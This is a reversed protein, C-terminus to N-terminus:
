DTAKKMDQRILEKIYGQRNAQKELYDIIDGDTSKNLTFKIQKINEKQYQIDYTAKKNM